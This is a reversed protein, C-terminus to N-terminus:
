PPVRASVAPLGQLLSDLFTIATAM